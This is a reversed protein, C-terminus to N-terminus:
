AGRQRRPPAPWTREGLKALTGQMKGLEASAASGTAFDVGDKFGEIQRELRDLADRVGAIQRKLLELM